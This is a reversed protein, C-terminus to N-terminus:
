TWKKYRCGMAVGPATTSICPWLPSCALRVWPESQLKCTFQSGESSVKGIELHEECEFRTFRLRLGWWHGQLSLDLTLPQDWGAEAELTRMEM